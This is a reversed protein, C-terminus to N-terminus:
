CDQSWFAKAMRPLTDFSSFNGDVNTWDSTNGTLYKAAASTFFSTAYVDVLTDDSIGAVSVNAQVYHPTAASGQDIHAINDGDSGFDDKTVYGVTKVLDRKYVKDTQMNLLLNKAVGWPATMRQWYNQYPNTQYANDYTFPGELL